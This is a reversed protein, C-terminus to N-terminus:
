AMKEEGDRSGDASSQKMRVGGRGEDETAEAVTDTDEMEAPLALNLIVTVLATVAFGTEMVLEIADLFGQLARNPGAYTFVSSFYTPVLTAGYGIALGATLIFRNRRNFPVGRAIIAIGSVAVSTFLFTTMGGIVASPIATLAAAFKAFIGMIILFFSPLLNSKKGSSEDEM